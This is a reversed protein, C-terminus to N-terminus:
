KKSIGDSVESGEKRFHEFVWKPWRSGTKVWIVNEENLKFETGKKTKIVIKGKDFGGFKGSMAIDKDKDLKFAVLTGPAITKLYDSTERKKSQSLYSRISAILEQKPMSWRGVIHFDKAIDRLEKLTREELSDIM